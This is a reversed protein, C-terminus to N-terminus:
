KNRTKAVGAKRLVDGHLVPTGRARPRSQSREARLIDNVYATSEEPMTESVRGMTKKITGLSHFLSALGTGLQELSPGCQQKHKHDGSETRHLRNVEV